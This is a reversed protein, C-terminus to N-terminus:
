PERRTALLLRYRNRGIDTIGAINWISGDCILRDHPTLTAIVSSWRVRFRSQLAAGVQQAALMERGSMDERSAFVRALTSWTETASNFEDLTTTARQFEVITDLPGAGLM